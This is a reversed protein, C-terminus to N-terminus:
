KGLSEHNVTTYASQRNKIRNRDYLKKHQQTIKILLQKKLIDPHYIKFNEFLYSTLLM